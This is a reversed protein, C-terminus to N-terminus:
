MISPNNKIARLKAGESLLYVTGRVRNSKRGRGGAKGKREKRKKKGLM